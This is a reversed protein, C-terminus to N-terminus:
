QEVAERYFPAGRLPVPLDLAAVDVDLDGGVRGPVDAAEYGGSAAPVGVRGVGDAFEDGDVHPRLEPAAADSLRCAVPM